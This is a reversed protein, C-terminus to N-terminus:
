RVPPPEDIHVTTGIYENNSEASEVVESDKDLTMICVKMGPTSWKIQTNLPASGGGAISHNIRVRHILKTGADRDDDCLFEVWFPGAAANGRNVITGWINVNRNVLNATDFSMHGQVTLDAMPQDAAYVTYPFVFENNGENCEQLANLHDLKVYVELQEGNWDRRTWEFDPNVQSNNNAFQVYKSDIATNHGARRVAVFAQPVQNVGNPLFQLVWIRIRYDQHVRPHPPVVEVRSVRLDPTCNQEQNGTGSAQAEVKATSMTTVTPPPKQPFRTPKAPSAPRTTLRPQVPPVQIPALAPSAGTVKITRTVRHRLGLRNASDIDFYLTYNGPAPPTWRFRLTRPRGERSSFERQLLSKAGEVGGQVPIGRQTRTAQYPYSIVLQEGAAYVTKDPKIEIGAAIASLPLGLVLLVIVALRFQRKLFAAFFIIRAPFKDIGGMFRGGKVLNYQTYTTQATSSL